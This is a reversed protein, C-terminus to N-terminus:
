AIWTAFISEPEVDVFRLNGGIQGFFNIIIKKSLKKEWWFNLLPFKLFLDSAFDITDINLNVQDAQFDFTKM